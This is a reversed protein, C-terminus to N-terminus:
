EIPLVLNDVRRSIVLGLTHSHGAKHTPVDVHQEFGAADLMEVFNMAEKNNPIDDVHINFDGILILTNQTVTVTELLSSFEEIFQGYTEKFVAFKKSSPPPRYISLLRIM